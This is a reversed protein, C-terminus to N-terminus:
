SGNIEELGVEQKWLRLSEKKIAPQLLALNLPKRSYLATWPIFHGKCVNGKPRHEYRYWKEFLKDLKHYQYYERSSPRVDHLMIVDAQPSLHTAAIVRACRFTDVLLFDIQGIRRAVIKYFRFTNQLTYSHVDAHATGNKTMAIPHILYQHSASDPFKLSIEQAWKMDHEITILSEVPCLLPTSFNGCGCEVVRKPKLGEMVGKLVAQSSGWTQEIQFPTELTM